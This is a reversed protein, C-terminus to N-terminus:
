FFTFLRLSASNVVGIALSATALLLKKTHKGRLSNAISYNKEQKTKNLAGREGWAQVDHPKKKAGYL